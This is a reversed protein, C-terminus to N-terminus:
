YHPPASVWLSLCLPTSGPNRATSPEGCENRAGDGTRLVFRKGGIKLELQGDILDGSPEAEAPARSSM